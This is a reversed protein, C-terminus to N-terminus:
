LIDENASYRRQQGANMWGSNQQKQGLLDVPIDTCTIDNNYLIVLPANM